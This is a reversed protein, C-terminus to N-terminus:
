VSMVPGPVKRDMRKMVKKRITPSHRTIRVGELPTINASSLTKQSKGLSNTKITTLHRTRGTSSIDFPVDLSTELRYPKGKQKIGGGECAVYEGCGSGDDLFSEGIAEDKKSLSQFLVNFILYYM